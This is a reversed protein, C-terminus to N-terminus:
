NLKSAEPQYVKDTGIYKYIYCAYSETVKYGLRSILGTLLGHHPEDDVTAILKYRGRFVYNKYNEHEVNHKSFIFYEYNRAIYYDFAQYPTGNESLSQFYCQKHRAFYYYEFDAAVTSHPPIYQMIRQENYVPDRQHYTDAIYAAKLVFAGLLVALITYNIGRFIIHDYLSASVGTFLLIAFPAVMAFYRGSLGGGVLLMFSLMVPVTLLVLKMNKYARGYILLIVFCAFAYAFYVMSSNFRLAEATTGVHGQIIANSTYNTYIYNQVSGFHVFIWTYFLACFTIIITVYKLLTDRIGSRRTNYIEYFFYCFYFSFAFLIRPTTLASCALLAGTAAAPLLWKYNHKPTITVFVLFSALFFFLTMSDMRGSHLYQNYSRELALIGVTLFTAAPRFKLHLCIRYILYLNAFGFLLNSIRFSFMTLGFLKVVWAQLVFYVPGYMANQWPVAIDIAEPFFTHAKIYSNTISAFSVEDFWPLPSYSLTALHYVVYLLSVIFILIIYKKNM